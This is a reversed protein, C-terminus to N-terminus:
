KKRAPRNPTLLQSKLFKIARYSFNRAVQYKIGLIDAIEPYSKNKYYRLFIVEKQHTPLNEILGQLNEELTYNPTQNEEQPHDNYLEVIRFNNLRKILVRRFCILLYNELSKKSKLDNKNKWFNLFLEQIADEIKQDCDAITRGYVMLTKHYQLFIQEINTQRNM